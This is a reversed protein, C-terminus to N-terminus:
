KLNWTFVSEIKVIMSVRGKDRTPYDEGTYHRAVRDIASLDPDTHMDVVSGQISVHQYWSQGMVTLAVRPDAEVHRVRARGAEINLLITDDDQLLYWTAASVPQGHKGLTAVVCPLPQRLFERLSDTLEHTSMVRDQWAHDALNGLLLAVSSAERTPQAKPGGARRGEPVAAVSGQPLSLGLGM